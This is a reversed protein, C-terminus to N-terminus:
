MLVTKGVGNVSSHEKGVIYASWRKYISWVHLLENRPVTNQEVSQNKHWYWITKIVIAKYHPKVNPLIIMGGAEYSLYSQNKLSMQPKMNNLITKGKERFIYHSSLLCQVLGTLQKPSYPCKLLIRSMLLSHRNMEKDEM